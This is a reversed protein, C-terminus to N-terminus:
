AGAPMPASGLPATVGLTNGQFALASRGLGRLRRGSANQEAALQAQDEQSAFAARQQVQMAQQQQQAQAQDAASQGGGGTLANILKSM